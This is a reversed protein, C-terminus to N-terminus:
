GFSDGLRSLDSVVHPKFALWQYLVKQITGKRLSRYWEKFVTQLCAAQLLYSTQSLSNKFISKTLLVSPAYIGPNESKSLFWFIQEWM